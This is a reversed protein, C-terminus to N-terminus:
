SGNQLFLVIHDKSYPHYPQTKWRAIKKLYPIQAIMKTVIGNRNSDILKFLDFRLQHFIKKRFTTQYHSCIIKNLLGVKFKKQLFNIYDEGMMCVHQVTKFYWFNAIDYKCVKADAYGTSIILVGNKKLMALLDTILKTPHTSHEFVDSLVIADFVQKQKELADKDLTHIGKEEAIKLARTDIDYGYCEHRDIFKAMFRGNSCGYDLVKLNDKSFLYQSVVQETTYATEPTWAEFDFSNYYENFLKESLIHDKYYLGCNSCKLISYFEQTFVRGNIVENFANSSGANEYRTEGCSICENIKMVEKLLTERDRNM